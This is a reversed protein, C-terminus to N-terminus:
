KNECSGPDRDPIHPVVLYGEPSKVFLSLLRQGTRLDCRFSLCIFGTDQCPQLARTPTHPPERPTRQGGCRDQHAPREGFLLLWSRPVSHNQFSFLKEATNGSDEQGKQLCQSNLFDTIHPFSPIGLWFGTPGEVARAPVPERRGVGHVSPTCNRTRGTWRTRSAWVRKSTNRWTLATQTLDPVSLTSLTRSHLNSHWGPTHSQATDQIVPWM